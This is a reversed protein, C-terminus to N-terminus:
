KGLLELRHGRKFRDQAAVPVDGVAMRELHILRPPAILSRPLRQRAIGVRDDREDLVRLKAAAAAGPKRATEFPREKGLIPLFREHADVGVLALRGREIVPQQHLFVRMLKEFPDQDGAEGGSRRM